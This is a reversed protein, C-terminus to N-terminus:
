AELNKKKLIKVLKIYIIKIIYIFDKILCDSDVKLLGLKICEM